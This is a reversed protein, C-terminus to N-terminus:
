QSLSQLEELYESPTGGSARTDEYNNSYQFEFKDKETYYINAWEDFHKHDAFKMDFDPM